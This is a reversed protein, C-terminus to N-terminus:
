IITDGDVHVVIGAGETAEIEKIIKILQEDLVFEAALQLLGDGSLLDRSLVMGPELQDPRLALERVILKGDDRQGLSRSELVAALATVVEPDYRRNNWEVMYNYAIEATRPEHEPTGAQLSDYDNAVAIIRAGLPIEHRNLGDPFGLGDFREHHARILRAAPRLEEVTMLIHAGKAPHDKYRALEMATMKGPPKCRLDAADSIKGIDHLLAAIQIDQVEGRTCGLQVALRRALEGVRRSHGARYPEDQEILQSFVKVSMTFGTKLKQNAVVVRNNEKRLEATREAVQHELGANLIQLQRNQERTLAELRSREQELFQRELANHMNLRLDGDDWPKAIFRYIGGENIAAITAALDANGTLLLRLIKPWRSRVQALFQIGDIEPMRFDSVVVQVADAELVQLAKTASDAFMCRYGEQRLARSLAALISPEDDVFLM